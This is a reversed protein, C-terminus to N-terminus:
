LTPLRPPRRENLALAPLHWLFVDAAQLPVSEKRGSSFGGVFPVLEDRGITKLFEPLAQHLRLLRATHRGNSEVIFDVREVNEDDFWQPVSHLVTLAYWVFNLDDASVIDTGLHRLYPKLTRKFLQELELSLDSTVPYLKGMGCIVDVAAEVRRDADLRTLGWSARWEESRIETMHLHPIRPPGALVMQEWAPAFWESWDSVSLTFGGYRASGSGHSEDSAALFVALLREKDALGCVVSRVHPVACYDLRRAM